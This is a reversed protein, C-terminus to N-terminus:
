RTVSQTSPPIRVPLIDGYGCYDDDDGSVDDKRRGEIIRTNMAWALKMVGWAPNIVMMVSTKTSWASKMVM